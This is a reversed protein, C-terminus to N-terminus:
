LRSLSFQIESERHLDPQCVVPQGSEVIRRPLFLVGRFCFLPVRRYIMEIDIMRSVALAHSYLLSERHRESRECTIRRM